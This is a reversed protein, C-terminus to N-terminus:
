RLLDSARQGNQATVRVPVTAWVIKGVHPVFSGWATALADVLLLGRGSESSEDVIEAMRAQGDGGDRVAIHLLPPLLRLTLDVHTGAHVVANTVLESAILQAANTDGRVGQAECFEQVALRALGPANRDPPIRQRRWPPVPWRGLELVAAARDPCITVYRAVGLRNVAGALEASASAVTFRTGPWRQSQQAVTALVTVGVDDVVSLDSADLVLGAPQEALCELLAARLDAATYADLGGRPRVVAVPYTHEVEFSLQGSM